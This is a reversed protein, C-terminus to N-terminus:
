MIQKGLTLKGFEHLDIPASITNRLRLFPKEMRMRGRNSSEQTTCVNNDISAVFYTDFNDPEEPKSYDRIMLGIDGRREDHRTDFCCRACPIRTM